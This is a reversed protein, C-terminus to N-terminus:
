KISPVKILSGELELLKRKLEVGRSYGGLGNEAVVRHCPILLLIPNKSLAVGVARPSTGVADAIDKYTVVEGWKVKRVEKYVRMRFSNTNLRIPIDDFDTRKGQFYNDLKKFLGVFSNNDVLSEEACKCFDLMVIKEDESVLTIPGFPSMYTGYRIM